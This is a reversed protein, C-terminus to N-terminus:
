APERDSNIRRIRLETDLIQRRSIRRCKLLESPGHEKRKELIRQEKLGMGGAPSRKCWGWCAESACPM